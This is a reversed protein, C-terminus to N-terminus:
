CPTRRTKCISCISNTQFHPIFGWSHSNWLSHHYIIFWCVPADSKWVVASPAQLDMARFDGLFSFDSYKQCKMGDTVMLCPKEHCILLSSPRQSESSGRFLQSRLQSRSGPSPGSPCNKRSLCPSFCFVVKSCAPLVCFEVVARFFRGGVAMSGAFTWSSRLFSGLLNGTTTYEKGPPLFLRFFSITLWSIVAPSKTFNTRWCHGHAASPLTQILFLPPRKFTGSCRRTFSKSLRLYLAASSTKYTSTRSTRSTSTWLFVVADSGWSSISM